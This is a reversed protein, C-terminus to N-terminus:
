DRQATITKIIREGMPILQKTALWAHADYLQESHLTFSCACVGGNIIAGEPTGFWGPEGADIRARIAPTDAHASCTGDNNSHYWFM